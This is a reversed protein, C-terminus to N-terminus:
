LSQEQCEISITLLFNINTLIQVLLTLVVLILLTGEITISFLHFLAIQSNM